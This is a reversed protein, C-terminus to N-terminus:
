KDYKFQAIMATTEHTSGNREQLLKRAMSFYRDKLDEMSRETEDFEYRDAIVIWRLDYIRCLELLYDTEERSWFPDQLINRYEEDTYEIANTKKNFQAFYYDSSKEDTGGSAEIREWHTLELNDCRAANRFPLRKWNTVRKTINIKAKYLPAAPALPPAGGILAYLERNSISNTSMLERIKLFPVPTLSYAPNVALIRCFSFPGCMVSAVEIEYPKLVVNRITLKKLSTASAFMSAFLLVHQTQLNSVFFSLNELVCQARETVLLCIIEMIDGFIGNGTIVLTKLSSCKNELIKEFFWLWSGEETCSESDLVLGRLSTSVALGEAIQTFDSIENGELDIRQISTSRSILTGLAYAGENQFNTEAVRPERFVKSEMLALVIASIGCDGISQNQAVDLRQLSPHLTIADALTEIDKVTLSNRSLNLEQLNKSQRFIQCLQPMIYSLNKMSITISKLTSITSLNKVFISPGNVSFGRLVLKELNQNQGILASYGEVNVCNVCRGSLNKLNRISNMVPLNISKGRISLTRLGPAINRIFINFLSRGASNYEEPFQNIDLWALNKITIPHYISYDLLFIDLLMALQELSDFVFSNLLTPAVRIRLRRCCFAIHWCDIESLFRVSFIARHIESPLDLLM